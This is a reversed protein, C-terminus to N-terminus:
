PAPRPTQTTLRTGYIMLPFKYLWAPALHYIMERFFGEHGMRVLHEVIRNYPIRGPRKAKWYHWLAYNVGGLSDDMEEATMYQRRGDIVVCYRINGKAWYHRIVDVPEIYPSDQDISGDDSDDDKAMTPVDNIDSCDLVLSTAPQNSALPALISRAEHDVVARLHELAAQISVTVSREQQLPLASVAATPDDGSPPASDKTLSSDLLSPDIYTEAAGLASYDVSDWAGSRVSQIYWDVFGQSSLFSDVAVPVKPSPPASIPGQHSVPPADYHSTAQANFCHAPLDTDAPSLHEAYLELNCWDNWEGDFMYEPRSPSYEKFMDDYVTVLVDSQEQVPTTVPPSAVSLGPSSLSSPPDAAGSMLDSSHALPNLFNQCLEGGQVVRSDKSLQEVIEQSAHAADLPQLATTTTVPQSGSM